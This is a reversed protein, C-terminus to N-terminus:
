ALGGLGLLLLITGRWDLGPKADPDRSEPVHYYAIWITPLAILPNILFIWRWSFHDVIWGGLSPALATAVAWAAAWTGIARGREAEDFTAGILALSCPLLVTAGAGQVARALILETLGPALGCWLSAAAFICIGVIFFWRRGSQDGTAGGVLLLASVSLTYANVIWQVVVASTQLDTEIAPLAVNVISEDINAISSALISALLVWPKANAPRYVALSTSRIVEEACPRTRSSSM